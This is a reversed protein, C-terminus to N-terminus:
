SLWLHGKGAKKVLYVTDDFETFTVSYDERSNHENVSKGKPSSLDLILRWSQDKKPVVGLPSCHLLHIPPVEFPGAIHKCELEKVIAKSVKTPNDLASKLNKPVISFRPGTYGLHFGNRFGTLSHKIDPFPNDQLEAM